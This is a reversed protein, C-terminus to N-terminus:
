VWFLWGVLWSMCKKWHLLHYYNTYSADRAGRGAGVKLRKKKNQKDQSAHLQTFLWKSFVHALQNCNQPIIDTDSCNAKKCSIDQAILSDIM